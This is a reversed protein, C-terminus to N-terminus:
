RWVSVPVPKLQLYQVLHHV